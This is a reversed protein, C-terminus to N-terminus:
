KRRSTAARNPCERIKQRAVKIQAEITKKATGRLRSMVNRDMVLSMWTALAKAMAPCNGMKEHALAKGWM